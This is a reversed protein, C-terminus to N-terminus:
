DKQDTLSTLLYRPDQLEIKLKILEVAAELKMKLNGLSDIHEPELQEIIKRAEARAADIKKIDETTLTSDFGRLEHWQETTLKIEKGM